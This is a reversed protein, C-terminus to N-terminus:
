ATAADRRNSLSAQRWVGEDTSEGPGFERCVLPCEQAIGLGPAYDKEFPVRVVGRLNPPQAPRHPLRKAAIRRNEDVLLPPAHLANPRRM